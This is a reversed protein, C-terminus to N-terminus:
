CSATASEMAHLREIVERSEPRIQDTFPVLGALTGDVAVYICSYGQQDLASRDTEAPRVNISSQRM